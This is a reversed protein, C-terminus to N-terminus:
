IEMVKLDCLLDNHTYFLYNKHMKVQTPGFKLVALKLVQDTKINSITKDVSLVKLSVQNFDTQDRHQNIEIVQAKFVDQCLEAINVKSFSFSYGSTLFFSLYLITKM